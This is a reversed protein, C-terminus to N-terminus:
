LVDDLIAVDRRRGRGSSRRMPQSHWQCKCRCEVAVAESAAGDTAGDAAGDTYDILPVMLPRPFVGDMASGYVSSSLRDPSPDPSPSGPALVAEGDHHAGQRVGVSGHLRQVCRKLRCM